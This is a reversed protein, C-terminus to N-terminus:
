QGQGYVASITILGKSPAAAYKVYVQTGLEFVWLQGVGNTTFDYLSFGGGPIFDNITTGDFSFYMDADTNNIIKLIRVNHTYAAGLPTFSNTVATYAMQRLADVRVVLSPQAM